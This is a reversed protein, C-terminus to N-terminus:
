ELGGRPVLKSNDTGLSVCAGTCQCCDRPTLRKDAPKLDVIFDKDSGKGWSNQNLKQRRKFVIYLFLFEEKNKM